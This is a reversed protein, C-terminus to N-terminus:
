WPVKTVVVSVSQYGHPNYVKGEQIKGTPAHYCVYRFEIDYKEVMEKWALYEGEEWGPYNAYEDFTIVSGRVFLKRSCMEEMFTITSSYLDADAHCYAVPIHPPYRDFFKSVTNEFWGVHLVVNEEIRNDTPFGLHEQVQELNPPIGGLDFKGKDYEGNQGNNWDEPLGEFSDFGHIIVRRRQRNADNDGDGDGDDGDDDDDNSTKANRRRRRESEKKRGEVEKMGVFRDMLCLDRGTHVGFELVHAQPYKTFVPWAKNISFRLMKGRKSVPVAGDSMIQKHYLNHCDPRLWEQEQEQEQM